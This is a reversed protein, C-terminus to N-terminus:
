VSTATVVFSLLAAPTAVSPVAYSIAAVPDYVFINRNCSTFYQFGTPNYTRGLRDSLVVSLAAANWAAKQDATANKWAKSIASLNNRASQQTASNPNVPITRVRLYSGFRNHSAVVCGSKGSMEGVLLGPTYKM